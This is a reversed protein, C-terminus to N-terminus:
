NHIEYQCILQTIISGLITFMFDMLDFSTKCIFVDYIEKIFASLIVIGFVILPNLFRIGLAQIIAGIAFHLGYAANDYESYPFRMNNEKEKELLILFGL